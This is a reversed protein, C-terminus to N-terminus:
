HSDDNSSSNLPHHHEIAAEEAKWTLEWLWYPLIRAVVDGEVLIHHLSSVLILEHSQREWTILENLRIDGDTANLDELILQLHLHPVRFPYVKSDKTSHRHYVPHYEEDDDLNGLFNSLFHSAFSSTNSKRSLRYLIWGKYGSPIYM